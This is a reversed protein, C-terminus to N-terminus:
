SGEGEQGAATETAEADADVGHIGHVHHAERVEAQVDPDHIDQVDHVDHVDALVDPDGVEQVGHVEHVDQVNGLEETTATDPVAGLYYLNCLPCHPSPQLTSLAHRSAALQHIRGCHQNDLTLAYGAGDREACLGLKDRLIAGVKKASLVQKEQRALLLANTMETVDNVYIEPRGQHIAVLLSELV